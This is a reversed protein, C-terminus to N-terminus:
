CPSFKCRPLCFRKTQPFVCAGRRRAVYKLGWALMAQAPTVGRRKAVRGVVADGLMSSTGLPAYAEVVVGREACAARLADNRNGPHVEVQNVCPRHEAATAITEDLLEVNFNSVGVARALGKAVCGEMGPWTKAADFTGVIRGSAMEFPQHVLYLDLYKDESDSPGFLDDLTDRCAREVERTDFSHVWLKSTVFLEGRTVLGERIAERIGQGVEIENGYIWAGDIHRYGAAIAAKVALKTQAGLAWFLLLPRPPPLLTLKLSEEPLAGFSPHGVAM